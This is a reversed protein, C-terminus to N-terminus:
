RGGYTGVQVLIHFGAGVVKHARELPAVEGVLLGHTGNFEESGLHHREVYLDRVRRAWLSDGYTQPFAELWGSVKRFKNCYPCATWLVPCYLTTSHQTERNLGFYINVFFVLEKISECNKLFM